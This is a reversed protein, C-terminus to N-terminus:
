LEGKFWNLEHVLVLEREERRMSGRPEALLSHCVRGALELGLRELKLVEV